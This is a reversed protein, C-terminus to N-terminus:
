QFESRPVEPSKLVSSRELAISFGGSSWFGSKFVSWEHQPSLVNCANKWIAKGAAKQHRTGATIVLNKEEHSAKM